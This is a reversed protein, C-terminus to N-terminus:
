GGSRDDPVPIAAMLDSVVSTPTKGSLEAESTLLLRHGLVHPAVAKIDDATIFGRGRSAALSQASLVLALSGRPSVGLRVEPLKRTNSCITVAYSHLSPAVHVERAVVSMTSAQEASMVAQMDDTTHGAVRNRVVEVEADHDPYGLSLQMLFRDIQAEPLHYTGDFDVPNQTAVVLFPRPTRYTYRDVTVQREEMVELLASQTKPSARNIEDGVVVNAFVPGAQFEFERTQANWVQTGTVDSPLLDPTFQIRTMTGGISHAIAKALSTKGVGPVDDILLHGEAMMCVLAMDVAASKGRIFSEVNIKLAQFRDAFWAIRQQASQSGAPEGGQSPPSGGPPAEGSFPPPSSDTMWESM